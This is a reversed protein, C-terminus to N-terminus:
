RFCRKLTQLYKKVQYAGSVKLKFPMRESSTVEFRGLKMNESQRNVTQPEVTFGYQYGAHLAANCVRTDHAGYPYCIGSIEHGIIKELARKSEVLETKLADDELDTLVTHAVSHSLIEVGAKDLSEIQRATMVTEVDIAPGDFVTWTPQRGLHGMPVSIGFPVGYSELIPVGHELVSVFADDFIISILIRTKGDSPATTIRSPEVVCCKKSVYAMQREFNSVDKEEIGHYMMVVRVPTERILRLLPTFLVACVFVVSQKIAKLM